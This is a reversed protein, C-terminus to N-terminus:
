ERTQKLGMDKPLTLQLVGSPLLPDVWGVYQLWLIDTILLDCLQESCGKKRLFFISLLMINQFNKSNCSYEM